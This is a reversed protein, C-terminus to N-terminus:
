VYGNSSLFSISLEAARILDERTAKDISGVINAVKQLEISEFANAVDVRRRPYKGTNAYHSDALYMFLRKFEPYLKDRLHKESWYGSNLLRTRLKRPMSKLGKQAVSDTFAQAPMEKKSVLDEGYLTQGRFKMSIDQDSHTALFYEKAFMIFLYTDDFGAQGLHQRIKEEAKKNVDTLVITIDRDSRGEVWPDGATTSGAECLAIYGAINNSLWEHLNNLKSNKLESLM